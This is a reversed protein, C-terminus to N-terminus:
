AAPPRARLLALGTGLLGLLPPVAAGVAGVVMTTVALLGPVLAIVVGLRAERRARGAIAVAYAADRIGDSALQVNWEASISGASALAVSVDAAALAVDDSPSRGLVVVHAGADALRKVEAGRDAPLIEPRIHDIDLSRGLAECTERADGSILVPEVGVDLLYQVAARAGPRLGDQLGVLGVLREGLAVLLATRGMAELENIRTEASAVGIRERLMLARSGVAVPEGSSAVGTIGLGPFVTLSRVGDARLNRDRAARAVAVAVPHTSGAEAGAVLALVREAPEKGFVEISAVEPEGLLLTGRACFAAVTAQGAREFAIASRYAVGRRLTALLGLGVHLAGIQAVGATALASQAALAYALVSIAGAGGALGALATVLALAPGGREALVRGVRASPAILEARRRPDNTLRVWARDLGSWAVVARVRGDLVRAGAVLSEGEGRRERVDAGLWPEVVAQGAIISVDAPVTEGAEILIEEGPHLEGASAPALEQGMVRRTAASLSSLILEREAEVPRRARRMLLVGTAAALLSTGALNALATSGSALSLMLSAVSAIVPASLLAAPHPETPDRAGMLFRAVLSGTGVVVVTARLFALVRLEGALGLLLSLMGALAAMVLLLTQLDTSEVVEAAGRRPDAPAALEDLGDGFSASDVSPDAIESLAEATKQRVGLDLPAQAVTAIVDKQRLAGYLRLPEAQAQASDPDFAERCEASCFYRFQHHFIAVRAARLPDVPKRCTDCPRAAVRLLGAGGAAEGDVVGTLETDM